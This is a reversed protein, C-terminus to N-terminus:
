LVGRQAAVVERLTQQERLIRQTAKTRRGRKSKPKVLQSQGVILGALYDILNTLPVLRRRGLPITEIPFVGDSIQNRIHGSHCGLIAAAQDISLNYTGAPLQATIDGAIRRRLLESSLSKPM